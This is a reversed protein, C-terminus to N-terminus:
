FAVSLGIGFRGDLQPILSVRLQDLPVEEWRHGRISKGVLGGVLGGVFFGVFGGVVPGNVDSMNLYGREPPSVAIGIAAGSIAGLVAGVITATNSRGRSIDLQTITALPIASLSDTRVTLTEARVNVFRAVQRHLNLTPASVRVWQAGRVYQPVQGYLDASQVALVVALVSPAVRM